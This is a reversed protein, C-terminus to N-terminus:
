RKGYAEKASRGDALKWFTWGSRRVGSSAEAAASLSAYRNVGIYYGGETVTLVHVGGRTSQGVLSVGLPLGDTNTETFFEGYVKQQRKDKVRVSNIVHFAKTLEELQQRLAAVQEELSAPEAMVAVAPAAAGLPIKNGM